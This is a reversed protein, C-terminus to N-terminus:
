SNKELLFFLILIFLFLIIPMRNGALFIGIFSFAIILLLSFKYFKEKNFSIFLLVFYLSFIFFRQIFSGAILEDGFPGGLRRLNKTAVYGFIDKDFFFQVIM